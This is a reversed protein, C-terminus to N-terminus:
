KSIIFKHTDSLNLKLYFRNGFLKLLFGANKIKKLNLNIFFFHLSKTYIVATMGEKM